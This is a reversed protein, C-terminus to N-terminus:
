EGGAARVLARLDEPLLEHYFGDKGRWSMLGAPEISSRHSRPHTEEVADLFRSVRDAPGSGTYLPLADTM